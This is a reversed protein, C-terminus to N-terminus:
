FLRTDRFRNTGSTQGFVGVVKDRGVGGQMVTDGECDVKEKKEESSESAWGIDEDAQRSLGTGLSSFGWSGGPGFGGFMSM